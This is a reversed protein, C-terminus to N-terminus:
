CTINRFLFPLLALACYLWFLQRFHSHSLSQTMKTTAQTKIAHRRSVRLLVQFYKVLVARGRRSRSLVYNRHAQLFYFWYFHTERESSVRSCLSERRRRSQNYINSNLGVVISILEVQNFRHFCVKQQPASVIHTM